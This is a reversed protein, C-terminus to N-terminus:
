DALRMRAGVPGGDAALTAAPSGAALGFDGTKVNRFLPDAVLSGSDFGTARRFDDFQAATYFTKLHWLLPGAPQFWCNREMALGANWDNEMRLCSDTSESFINERVVVGKTDASNHYFMLHRGNPDPRQAHGWGRGAGHCTNREFLIDVTKSAKGRNWYEFSYESNWIVNNRYVINRQENDQQGQNTLAADYIEWIRCGEVLNDHANEWFEIGNGYRVPRGDPRTHQHGGGIYSLDCNRVVIHHTGHGGIGHAATYRLDLDEYTVHHRGGENILHRTLALEINTHAAAPNGNWFVRVQGDAASYWYDGPQKLDDASWKKVGCRPGGDFIINGVDVTLPEAGTYTRQKWAVPEFEFRAGAPLAGGLFLTIRGDKAATTATYLVSFDTWNTGITLPSTAGTGYATWPAAAKMLSVRPLAFPISSRARFAFVYHRGEVVPLPLLSLQIHNPATGAATGNLRMVQADGDKAVNAGGETHLSWRGPKIDVPEVRDAAESVTTWISGGLNRWDEPRNRAVSGFLRPRLGEGYAGYLVPAGDAGSQPILQGRWIGGRKFLVRDGPQLEATNVRSLSRWPANTSSGAAADDGSTSDVFFSRSAASTGGAILTGLVVALWLRPTM